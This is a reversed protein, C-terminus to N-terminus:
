PVSVCQYHHFEVGGPQSRYCARGLQPCTTGQPNANICQPSPFTATCPRLYIDICNEVTLLNWRLAMPGELASSEEANIAPAQEDLDGPEGGDTACGAVVALTLAFFLSSIVPSAKM